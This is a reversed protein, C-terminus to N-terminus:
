PDANSLGMGFEIGNKFDLFCAMRQAKVQITINSFPLWLSMLVMFLAKLHKVSENKCGDNASIKQM